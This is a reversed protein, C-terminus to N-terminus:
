VFFQYHIKSFAVCNFLASEYNMAVSPVEFLFPVKFVLLHIVRLVVFKFM